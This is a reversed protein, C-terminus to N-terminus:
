AFIGTPKNSMEKGLLYIFFVTTSNIVIFFLVVVLPNGNSVTFPMTALYYYFPWHFVGDIDTKAGILTLNHNVVIKRIALFDVGQEPGFFLNQWLLYFRLFIAIFFLIELFFSIFNRKIFLDQIM